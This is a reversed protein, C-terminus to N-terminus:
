AESYKKTQSNAVKTTSKLEYVKGANKNAAV